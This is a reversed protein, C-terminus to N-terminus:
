DLINKPLEFENHKNLKLDVVKIISSINIPGYIHPYEENLNYLDEWVVKSDLKSTEIVLLIIGSEKPYIYNAVKCVQKLSSCHTFGDQELSKPFYKTRGKVLNWEENKIIHTIIM